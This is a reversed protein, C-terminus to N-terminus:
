DVLQGLGKVPLEGLPPLEITGVRSSPQADFITAFRM